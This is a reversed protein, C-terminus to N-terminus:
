LVMALATLEIEQELMKEEFCAESDDPHKM